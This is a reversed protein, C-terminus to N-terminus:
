SNHCEPSCYICGNVKDFYKQAERVADQCSIFFGIYQLHLRNSIDPLFSCEFVHVEHDGTSPNPLKTILYSPM